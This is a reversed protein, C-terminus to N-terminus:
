FSQVPRCRRLDLGGVASGFSRLSQPEIRLFGITLRSALLHVAGHIELHIVGGPTRSSRQCPIM